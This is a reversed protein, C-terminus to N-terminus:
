LHGLYKFSGNTGLPTGESFVKGGFNQLSIQEM